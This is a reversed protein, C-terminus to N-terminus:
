SNAIEFHVEKGKIQKDKMGVLIDNVFEAPVDMFSFNDLIKIKGIENGSVATNAAVSGVIDKAMIKDRKGLNIFFKVMEGARFQPTKQEPMDVKKKTVMSILALAVEEIENQKLLENLIEESHFEKKDIVKQIETVCKKEKIKNIESITPIKGEKLITKAYKQISLIKNREKGVVFTYAKGINGNRGTRGIRHVYYEEEQPVDYNIVLELDEVDIGRAVVDTAALIQFEGAKFRKMIRERQAQKIDGHLNEARYGKSKLVEILNDVKKKTNCFVVAKKPNIVEVLRMLVEDKNAQKVNISIQEIKDVTLEKSKIKINVPNSLYKDAIQLIRKNMTASFLVTQREEPVDQLITEIDEEFGMNLMEDAEDLIVMKVDNLKLTKRRMHDMVRGPTGIVIQVGRKLDKIQREISEGGYIATCKVNEVYKYFRKVENAVQLALERTPCLVIAQVKKSGKDINQLIPLGYAATKGTGTKSQGIIDKGELICPIAKEQIQTAEIYGNDRLGRKIDDQLDLEEFKM